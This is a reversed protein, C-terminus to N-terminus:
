AQTTKQTYAVAGLPAYQSNLLYREFMVHKMFASENGRLQDISDEYIMKAADRVHTWNDKTLVDLFHVGNQISLFGSNKLKPLDTGIEYMRIINEDIVIRPYIAMTSEIEHARAIAHSYTLHKNQFHRSYAIGGRVFLRQGLFAVFVKRILLLFEPFKEHANCTLIITDSIAQVGFESENVSDFIQLSASLKEQFALLGADQDRKLHERYALVDLLATYIHPLQTSM